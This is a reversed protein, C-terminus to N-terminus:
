RERYGRLARVGRGETRGAGAPQQPPLGCPGRKGERVQAMETVSPKCLFIM